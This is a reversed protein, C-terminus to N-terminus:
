QGLGLVFNDVVDQGQEVLVAQGRVLRLIEEFAQAPDNLHSLPHRIPCRVLHGVKFGGSFPEVLLTTKEACNLSGM